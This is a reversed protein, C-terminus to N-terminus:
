VYLLHRRNRLYMIVNLFTRIYFFLLKFMLYCKSYVINIHKKGMKMLRTAEKERYTESAMGENVLAIASKFIVPGLMRRKRKIKHEENFNGSYICHM